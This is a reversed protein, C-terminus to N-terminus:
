IHTQHHRLISQLLNLPPAQAGTPATKNTSIQCRLMSGSRHWVYKKLLCSMQIYFFAKIYTAPDCVHCCQTFGAERVLPWKLICLTYDTHHFANWSIDDGGNVGGCVSPYLLPNAVWQGQTRIISLASFVRGRAPNLKGGWLHTSFLPM